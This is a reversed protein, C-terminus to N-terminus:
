FIVLYLENLTFRPSKFRSNLPFLFQWHTGAHFIPSGEGAKLDQVWCGEVELLFPKLRIDKSNDDEFTHKAASFFLSLSSFFFLTPFLLASLKEWFKNHLSQNNCVM